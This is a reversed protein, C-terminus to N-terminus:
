GHRRAFGSDDRLGLVLRIHPSEFYERPHTPVTVERIQTPRAVHDQDLVDEGTLDFELTDEEARLAPTVTLGRSVLRLSAAIWIRM